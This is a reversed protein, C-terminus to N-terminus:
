VMISDEEKWVGKTKPFGKMQPFPSLVAGKLLPPKPFPVGVIFSLARRDVKHVRRERRAHRLPQDVVVRRNEGLVDDRAVGAYRSIFLCFFGLSCEDAARALNLSSCEHRARTFNNLAAARRPFLPPNRAKPSFPAAHISSERELFPGMTYIDSLSLSLFLSLSLSLSLKVEIPTLFTQVSGAHSLCTRSRARPHASPSRRPGVDLPLGAIQFETPTKLTPRIGLRSAKHRDLTNYPFGRHSTSSYTKFERNHCEIHPSQFVTSHRTRFSICIAYTDRPNAPPSPGDSLSSSSTERPWLGRKDRRIKEYRKDNTHRRTGGFRVM